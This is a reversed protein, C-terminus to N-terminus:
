GSYYSKWPHTMDFTQSQKKKLKSLTDKNKGVILMGDVYLILIVYSEDISVNRRIYAHTEVVGLM